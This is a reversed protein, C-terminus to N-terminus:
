RHSIRVYSSAMLVRELDQVRNQLEQLERTSKREEASKSHDEELVVTRVVELRPLQPRCRRSNQYFQMCDVAGEVTKPQTDIAYMGADKDDAEYSVRPIVQGHVGPFQHFARTALTLVRDTLHLPTVRWQGKRGFQLEAPSDPRSRVILLRSSNWELRLSTELM